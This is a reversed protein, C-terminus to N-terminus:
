EVLLLPDITGENTFRGIVTEHRTHMGLVTRSEDTNRLSRYVVLHLPGVRLRYGAANEAIVRKGDAAVTLQRWEADPKRRSRSWDVVVPAILGGVTTQTLQLRGDAEDFRGSAGHVPDCPLSLPYCRVTAGPRRCRLERTDADGAVRTGPEAPLQSRYTLPKGSEGTVCDVFVAFEGERSLLVQRDIVIGRRAKHQLEMYDVDRDSFWCTCDWGGAVPVPKGDISLDVTWAGNLIPVGAVSLDVRPSDDDHAVVLVAAQPSWDTRLCALRSEDSQMAPRNRLSSLDATQRSPKHHSRPSRKELSARGNGLKSELEALLRMPPSKRGFGEAAARLIAVAPIASGNSLALRGDARCM